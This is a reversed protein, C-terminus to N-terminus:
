IYECTETFYIDNIKMKIRFPKGCGYILNKNKLEDCKEKTEHPNMQKGTKIIIGHRFIGCNIKEILIFEECHPCKLILHVENNNNINFDEEQEQEQEM